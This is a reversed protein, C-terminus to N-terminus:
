YVVGFDELRNLIYVIKWFFQMQFVVDIIGIFIKLIKMEFLVLKGLSKYRQLKDLLVINFVLELGNDVKMFDM